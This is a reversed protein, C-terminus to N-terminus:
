GFVWWKAVAVGDGALVGAVFVGAVNGLGGYDWVADGHGDGGGCDEAEGAGGVGRAVELGGLAEADVDAVHFGLARAFHEPFRERIKQDLQTILWPAQLRQPEPPLM